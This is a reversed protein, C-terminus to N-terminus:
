KFDEIRYRDSISYIRFWHCWDKGSVIAFTQEDTENGSQNYYGVLGMRDFEYYGHKKLLKKYIYDHNGIFRSNGTERNEEVTFGNSLRFYVALTKPLENIGYGYEKLYHLTGSITVTLYLLICIVLAMLIKKM